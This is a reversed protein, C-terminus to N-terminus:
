WLAIKHLLKVQFVDKLEFNTWFTTHTCKKYLQPVSVLLEKYNSRLYQGIFFHKFHTMNLTLVFLTTCWWYQIITANAERGLAGRNKYWLHHIASLSIHLWSIFKQASLRTLYNAVTQQSFTWMWVVSRTFYSPKFIWVVDAQLHGNAFRSNIFYDILGSSEVGPWHVPVLINIAGWSLDPVPLPKTRAPCM